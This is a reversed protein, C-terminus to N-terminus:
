TAASTSAGPARERTRLLLRTSSRGGVWGAQDTSISYLICLKRHFDERHMGNAPRARVTPGQFNSDRRGRQNTIIYEACHRKSEALASAWLSAKAPGRHLFKKICRHNGSRRTQGKCKGSAMARSDIPRSRGQRAVWTAPTARIRAGVRSTRWAARSNYRCRDNTHM